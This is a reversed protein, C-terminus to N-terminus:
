KGNVSIRPRDAFHEKGGNMHVMARILNFNNNVCYTESNSFMYQYLNYERLSKPDILCFTNDLKRKDTFYEEDWITLVLSSNLPFIIEVGNMGFGSYLYPQNVIHPKTLIPNDSTYVNNHVTVYFIWIKNVLQDQYSDILKQDGYIYFHELSQLEEDYKLTISDIFNHQKEDVQTKYFGKYLEFAYNKAKKNADIHMDRINPMRLYQLAILASFIDKTKKDIVTNNNHDNLWEKTKSAFLKLCDSYMIELNNAFFEKELMNASTITKGDVVKDALKYFNDEYAINAISQTYSKSNKKNYVWISKKNESFNRFYCQPIYHQKRNEKSM